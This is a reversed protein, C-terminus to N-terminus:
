GDEEEVPLDSIVLGAVLIAIAYITIIGFGYYYLLEFM